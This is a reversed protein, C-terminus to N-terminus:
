PFAFLSLSSPTVSGRERKQGRFYRQTRAFKILLIARRRLGGGAPPRRMSSLAEPAGRNLLLQHLQCGRAGTKDGNIGFACGHTSKRASSRAGRPLRRRSCIQKLNYEPARTSKFGTACRGSSARSGTVSSISFSQKLIAQYLLANFAFAGAVGALAVHPLFQDRVRQEPRTWPVRRVTCVPQAGSDAKNDRKSGGSAPETPQIYRLQQRIKRRRRKM